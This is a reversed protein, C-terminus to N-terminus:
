FRWFLPKPFFYKLVFLTGVSYMFDIFGNNYDQVLFSGFFLILFLILSLQLGLHSFKFAGKNQWEKKVLAIIFVIPIIVELLVIIGFAMTLGYPLSGFFTLEFKKVFWDPPFQGVLKHYAPVGSLLAFLLLILFRELKM